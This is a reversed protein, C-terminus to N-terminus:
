AVEEEPIDIVARFLGERRIRAKFRKMVPRSITTEALVREEYVRERTAGHATVAAFAPGIGRHPV